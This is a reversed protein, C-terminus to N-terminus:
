AKAKVGRGLAHKNSAILLCFLKITYLVMTNNAYARRRQAVRDLWQFM